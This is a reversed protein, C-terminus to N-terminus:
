AYHGSGKLKIAAMGENEAREIARRDNQALRSRVGEASGNSAHSAQRVVAQARNFYKRSLQHFSPGLGAGAYIPDGQEDLAQIRPSQIYPFSGQLEDLAASILESLLQQESRGPFLESLAALKASDYLTLKVRHETSERPDSSERNWINLLERIKM